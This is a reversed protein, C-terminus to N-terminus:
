FGVGSSAREGNVGRWVQALHKSSPCVADPAIMRHVRRFRVVAHASGYTPGIAADAEIGEEKLRRIMDALMAAEGGQLHAAGTADIALGDPPDPQCVPAYRRMAWVALRGLAAEDGAPDAVRVDLGPILAQAQTAAMGVRAGHALAATNAALVMRRRKSRGALILPLEPPPAADALGRRLRDVPWNPLYLSVVRRM